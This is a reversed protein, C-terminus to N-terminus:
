EAFSGGRAQGTHFVRTADRGNIGGYGHGNDDRAETWAACVIRDEDHNTWSDPETGCGGQQSLLLGDPEMKVVDGCKPSKWPVHWQTLAVPIYPRSQQRADADDLSRVTPRTEVM